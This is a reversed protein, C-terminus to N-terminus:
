RDGAVRYKCGDLWSGVLFQIFSLLVFAFCLLVFCFLIFCRGWYGVGFGYNVGMSGVM